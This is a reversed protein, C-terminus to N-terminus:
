VQPSASLAITMAPTPVVVGVQCRCSPGRGGTLGDRHITHMSACQQSVAGDAALVAVVGALKAVDSGIVTREWHSHHFQVPALRRLRLDENRHNHLKPRLERVADLLVMVSHCTASCYQDTHM